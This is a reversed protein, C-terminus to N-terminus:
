ISRRHTHSISVRSTLARGQVPPIELLSRTRLAQERGPTTRAARQADHGRGWRGASAWSEEEVPFFRPETPNRSAGSTTGQTEPPGLTQVQRHIPLLHPSGRLLLLQSHSRSRRQALLLTLDQTVSQSSRALWGIEDRLCLKPEPWVQAPSRELCRVGSDPM